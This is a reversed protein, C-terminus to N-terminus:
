EGNGYLRLYEGGGQKDRLLEKEREGAEIKDGLIEQQTALVRAAVPRDGVYRAVIEAQQKAADAVALRLASMISSSLARGSGTRLAQETLQVDIVSGGPGAQVTVSRDSSSASARIATIEEKMGAYREVLADVPKGGQPNSAM